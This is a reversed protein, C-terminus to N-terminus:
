IRPPLSGMMVLKCYQCIEDSLFLMECFKDFLDHIANPDGTALHYFSAGDIVYVGRNRVLNKLRQPRRPIVQVLYAEWSGKKQRIAIDLDSIVKEMNSANMTNHKNKVEAVIAKSPCELDYGSDHNIWGDISGLISQHFEGLPNSIGRLAAGADQLNDLDGVTEIGFSSAVLVSYFPDVVNNKRRQEAKQITARASTYLTDIANELEAESIWALSNSPLRRQPM